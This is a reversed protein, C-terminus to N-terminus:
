DYFLSEDTDFYDSLKKVTNMLLRDKIIVKDQVIVVRPQNRLPGHVAEYDNIEKVCESAECKCLNMWPAIRALKKIKAVNRRKMKKLCLDPKRFDDKFDENLLFDNTQVIRDNGIQQNINAVKRAKELDEQHRMAQERLTGDLLQFRLDNCPLKELIEERVYRKFDHRNGSERIGRPISNWTNKDREVLLTGNWRSWPQSRIENQSSARTSVGDRDQNRNENDFIDDRDLPSRNHHINHWQM